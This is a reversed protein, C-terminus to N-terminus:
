YKRTQKENEIIPKSNERFKRIYERLSLSDYIWGKQLAPLIYDSFLVLLEREEFAQTVFVVNYEKNIVVYQKLWGAARYDGFDNMWFQYGYGFKDRPNDNTATSIHNQTAENIYEASVIQKDRWKGNNLLLVGFKALDITNIKIGYAGMSYGKVSDWVPKAIGIEQYMEEDLFDNCSKGTVKTVVASLIFSAFNNYLFHTGPEYVLPSNFFRDFPNDNETLDNSFDQDHGVSMTLLHRITLTEYSPLFTTLEDMFYNIVKDDLHLLKKDQCIGIAISTFSKSISYVEENHFPEYGEAYADFVKAGDKVLIMSHINLHEREIFDFMDALYGKEVNADRCSTKEFEKHPFVM